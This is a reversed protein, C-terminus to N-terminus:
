NYEGIIFVYSNRDPVYYYSTIKVDSFFSYSYGKGDPYFKVNVSNGNVSISGDLSIEEKKLKDQSIIDNLSVEIKMEPKAYDLLLAIKKAYVEEYVALSNMKSVLFTILIAFFVATILIFMINEMLLSEGRKNSYRLMKM